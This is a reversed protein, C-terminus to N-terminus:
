KNEGSPHFTKRKRGQDTKGELAAELDAKSEAIENAEAEARALKEHHTPEGLNEEVENGLEEIVEVVAKEVQAPTVTPKVIVCAGAKELDEAVKNDVGQYTKGADYCYDPHAASNEKNMKITKM